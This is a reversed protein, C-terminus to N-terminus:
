TKKIGVENSTYGNNSNGCRGQHVIQFLPSFIRKCEWGCRKCIVSEPFNKFNDIWEEQVSKCFTCKYDAPKM